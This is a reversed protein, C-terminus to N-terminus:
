VLANITPAIAARRYDPRVALLAGLAVAWLAPPLWRSTTSSGATAAWVCGLALAGAVAALLAPQGGYGRKIVWALTARGVGLAVFFLGGLVPVVILLFLAAAIVRQLPGGAEWLGGITRDLQRSWFQAAFWIAVLSYLLTLAGYLTYI